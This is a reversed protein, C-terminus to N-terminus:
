LKVVIRFLKLLPLAPFGPLQTAPHSSPLLPFLFGKLGELKM